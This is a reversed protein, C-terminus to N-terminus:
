ARKKQKNNRISRRKRSKRTRSSNLKIGEPVVADEIKGIIFDMLLALICAPIAGALIMYNDVRQVGTFVLYGLGGAGIFAAITM